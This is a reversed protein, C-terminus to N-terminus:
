RAELTRPNYSFPSWVKTVGDERVPFKVGTAHVMWRKGFDDKSPDLATLVHTFGWESGSIRQWRFYGNGWETVAEPM